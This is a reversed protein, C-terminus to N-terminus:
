GPRVPKTLGRETNRVFGYRNNNNVRKYPRGCHNEEAIRRVRGECMGDARNRRPKATLNTFQRNVNHEEYNTRLPLVYACLMLVSQFLTFLWFVQDPPTSVHTVYRLTVTDSASCSMVNFFFVPVFGRSKYSLFEKCLLCCFFRRIRGVFCEYTIM